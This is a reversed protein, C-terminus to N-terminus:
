SVVAVSRARRRRRVATSRDAVVPHDAGTVQRSVTERGPRSAVEPPMQPQQAGALAIRGGRNRPSPKPPSSAQRSISRCAARVTAREDQAVPPGRAGDRRPSWSWRAAAVLPRSPRCGAGPFGPERGRSSDAAPAPSTRGAAAASWCSPTPPSRRASRLDDSTRPRRARGSHVRREAPWVLGFDHVGAPLPSPSASRSAAAALVGGGGAAGARRTSATPAASWARRGVAPDTTVGLGASWAPASSSRCWGTPPCTSCCPTAPTSGRARRRLLNGTKGVWNAYTTM